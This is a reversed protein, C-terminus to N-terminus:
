KNSERNNLINEVTIAEHASLEFECTLINRWRGDRQIRDLQVNRMSTHPLGLHKCVKELTSLSKFTM